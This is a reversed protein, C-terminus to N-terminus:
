GLGDAMLNDVVMIEVRAKVAIIHNFCLNFAISVSSIITFCFPIISVNHVTADIM